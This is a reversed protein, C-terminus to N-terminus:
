RCYSTYMVQQAIKSLEVAIDAGSNGVGVVVIRQDEYGCHDKYDHSHIIRGRFRAQDPWETPLYPITHHGSALMVGDFIDM